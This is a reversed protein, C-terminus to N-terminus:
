RTSPLTAAHTGLAVGARCAADVNVDVLWRALFAADFADGAGAANVIAAQPAPARYVRDGEGAICGDKDLKIAVVRAQQGLVRLADAPDAAGSLVQAERRNPLLITVQGGMSWLGDAGLV